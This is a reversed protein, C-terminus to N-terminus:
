CPKALAPRDGEKGGPEICRYHKQLTTKWNRAALFLLMQLGNSAEPAAPSQKTKLVHCLYSPARYSAHAPNEPPLPALQVKTVKGGRDGGGRPTIMDQLATPVQPNSSGDNQALIDCHFPNQWHWSSAKNSKKKLGPAHVLSSSRIM